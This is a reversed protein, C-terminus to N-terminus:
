ADSDVPILVDIEVRPNSKDKFSRTGDHHSVWRDDTLLGVTQLVDEPGQIANSQDCFMTTPYYFRMRLWVKQEPAGVAPGGRAVMWQSRLEWQAAKAWSEYAKSPSIKTRTGIKFIRKSNKKSRPTGFVILTTVLRHPANDMDLHITDNM